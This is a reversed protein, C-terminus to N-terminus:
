NNDLDLLATNLPTPNFSVTCDHKNGCMLSEVLLQVHEWNRPEAHLPIVIWKGSEQYELMRSDNLARRYPSDIEEALPAYDSICHVATHQHWCSWSLEGATAIKLPLLGAMVCSIGIWRYGKSKM